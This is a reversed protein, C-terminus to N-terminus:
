HTPEAAFATDIVLLEPAFAATFDAEAEGWENLSNISAASTCEL